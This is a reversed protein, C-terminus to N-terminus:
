SQRTGDKFAKKTLDSMVKVDEMSMLYQMEVYAELAGYLDAIECLEMIRAGQEVADELEEFEEKVKSFYGIVGKEITKQHYGAM